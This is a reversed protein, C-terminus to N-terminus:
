SRGFLSVRARGYLMIFAALLRDSWRAREASPLARRLSEPADDFFLTSGVYKALHVRPSVCCGCRPARALEREAENRADSWTAAFRPQM